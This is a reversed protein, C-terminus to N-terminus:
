FRKPSLSFLSFLFFFFFFFLFSSIIIMSPQNKHNFPYGLWTRYFVPPIPRDTWRDTLGETQFISSLSLSYPYHLRPDPDSLGKNSNQDLFRFRQSLSKSCHPWLATFRTGKEEICPEVACYEWEELSKPNTYCWAGGNNRSPNRCYNGTLGEGDSISSISLSFSIIIIKYLVKRAFGALVPPNIKTLKIENGM